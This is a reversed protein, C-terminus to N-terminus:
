RVRRGVRFVARVDHLRDLNDLPNGSLVLLDADSGPSIRGKRDAVRCARAAVSTMMALVQLPPVGMATLQPAAFPLVDHPKYTNIGGDTGVVVKAGRELLSQAAAMIGAFRSALAPPLPPGNGVLGLTLSVYTDSAAIAALVAPDADIGNQDMFSAHEITDVGAAVADRISSLAHAHAAVPLGLRHAEGVVLRLDELSYQSEYPPSGAAMTGGSAMVKVVACGREHRERVADLLAAAGETEGGLFHCHGGITTIPPGAALIDPGDEPHDVLERRLALSLYDRDGLDRVTTVGARVVRAAAARMTALIQDADAAILATVPDASADFGLHVHADILGPMLFADDGLDVLRFEEPLPAETTQVRSIKGDEVLVTTPGHRVVGDFMGHARIAFSTPSWSSSLRPM